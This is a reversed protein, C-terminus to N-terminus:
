LFKFIKLVFLAKLIFYFTKIMMKLPSEIFCFCLNKQFNLKSFGMSEWQNLINQKLQKTKLQTQQKRRLVIFNYLPMEEAHTLRVETSNKKKWLNVDSVDWFYSIVITIKCLVSRHIKPFHTSLGVTFILFRNWFFLPWGQFIARKRDGADCFPFDGPRGTFCEM